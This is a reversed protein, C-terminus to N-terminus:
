KDKVGPRINLHSSSHVVKGKQFEIWQPSQHTIGTKAAIHNSLDRSAIVDVLYADVKNSGLFNTVRHLATSSISCRSSHKFISFSGQTSLLEEFSSISDLVKFGQDKNHDQKKRLWKMPRLTHKVVM